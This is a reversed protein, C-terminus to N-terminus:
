MQIAYSPSASFLSCFICALLSRYPLLLCVHTFLTPDSLLDEIDISVMPSSVSCVDSNNLTVNILPLILRKHRETLTTQLM